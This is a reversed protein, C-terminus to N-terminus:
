SGRLLHSITMLWRKKSITAAGLATGAGAYIAIWYRQGTAAVIAAGVGVGIAIWMGFNM